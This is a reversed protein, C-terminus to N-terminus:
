LDGPQKEPFNTSKAGGSDVKRPVIKRRGKISIPLSFSVGEGYCSYISPHAWKLTSAVSVTGKSPCQGACCKISLGVNPRPGHSRTGGSWLLNSWPLGWDM